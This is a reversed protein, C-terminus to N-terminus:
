KPQSLREKELLATLDSLTVFQPPSANQEGSQPNGITSGREQPTRPNPEEHLPQPMPGQTKRLVRLYEVLEVQAQQMGQLTKLLFSFRYDSDEQNVEHQNAQEGQPAQNHHSQAAPLSTNRTGEQQNNWLRPPM